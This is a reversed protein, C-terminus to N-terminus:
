HEKGGRVVAEMGYVKFLDGANLRNSVKIQFYRGRIDPRVRSLRPEDEGATPDQITGTWKVTEDDLDTFVDVTIRGEHIVNLRRLREYPEESIFKQWRTRFSSTMNITRDQIPDILDNYTALVDDTDEWVVLSSASATAPVSRGLTISMPSSHKTWKLERGGGHGIYFSGQGIGARFIDSGFNILQPLGSVAWQEERLDGEQGSVSKIKDTKDVFYCRGNFACFDLGRGDNGASDWRAEFGSGRIIRKNAFTTSDYVVWISTEKFVLLLDDLPFIAIISDGKDEGSRIDVWNSGYSTAPSEPDGINSFFLRAPTGPVGAICMRNKWACMTAGQPPSNAWASTAAATGDWKQNAGATGSPRSAWLHDALLSNPMFAFVFQRNTIAYRETQVATSPVLSNIRSAGLTIILGKEGWPVMIFPASSINTGTLVTGTSIGARPRICPAGYGSILTSRYDNLVVDDLEPSFEPGLELPNSLEDLGKYPLAIPIRQLGM